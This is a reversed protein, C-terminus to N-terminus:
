AEGEVVSYVPQQWQTLDAVFQENTNRFCLSMSTVGSGGVFTADVNCKIWGVGSKQWRVPMPDGDPVVSHCQMQHVTFWENWVAFTMRIRM